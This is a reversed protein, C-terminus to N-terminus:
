ERANLGPANGAPGKSRGDARAKHALRKALAAPTPTGLLDAIDIELGLESELQATVTAAALSDGGLSFFDSDPRIEHLPLRLSRAFLRRIQGLVDAGLAVRTASDPRDGASEDGGSPDAGDLTRTAPAFIAKGSINRPLEAVEAISTPMMGSHLHARLYRHLAAHDIGPREPVILAELRGAREAAVCAAVEHAAGLVREVEDLEVRQGRIKVQRDRRGLYEVTGDALWRAMDGTRYLLGPRDAPFPTTIFREEMLAPRSIYRGVGPGGIYLEGEAGMAVPAADQDLIYLQVNAAPRGIPPSEENLCEHWTAMVATEAPGYLNLFRRQPTKWRRLVEGTLREGAAAAIRLGPLDNQPLTLWISPTLIAATVRQEAMFRALPPGITLDRGRAPVLTAGSLLALVIDGFCGDFNPSLFQLVRDTPELRFAQRQAIHLNVAGRHSIAIPKPRGTTGSTFVVYATNGSSVASRPPVDGCGSTDVPLIKTGSDILIDTARSADTLVLGASSDQLMARLRDRPCTEDALLVAGGAKAVALVSIVFDVGRDMVIGVVTEPEIGHARLRHALANARRDIARYSYATGQVDVATADPALRARREFGEHWCEYPESATRTDNFEVVVRHKEAASLATSDAAAPRPLTTASAPALSVIARAPSRTNAHTGWQVASLGGPLSYNPFRDLFGTIAWGAMREAYPAGACYHRGLGFGLHRAGRRTIDFRHGDPFQQADLNAAALHVIVTQGALLRHGAIETDVVTRRALYQSSGAFRMFENIAGGILGPDARLAQRQDPHSDLLALGSVVLNTLTQYGGGAIVVCNAAVSHLVDDRESKSFAADDLGAVMASIMDPGPTSIRRVAEARFVRVAEDLVAAVHLDKVEPLSSLSGLLSDYADAWRTLEDERGVMGLLHAVLAPPLRAAFDAVLDATGSGPIERLVSEAIARMEDDRARVASKAFQERLGARIESHRPPDLFLMQESVMGAVNAVADLGRHNM